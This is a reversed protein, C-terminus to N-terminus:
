RSSLDGFLDKRVREREEDIKEPEAGLDRLVSENM